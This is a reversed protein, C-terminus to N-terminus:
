VADPHSRRDVALGVAAPVWTTLSRTVAVAACSAAVPIGFAVPLLLV